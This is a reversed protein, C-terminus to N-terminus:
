PSHGTGSCAGRHVSDGDARRSQRDRDHLFGRGRYHCHSEDRAIGLLIPNRQVRWRFRRPFIVLTLEVVEVGCLHALLVFTKSRTLHSRRDATPSHEDNEIAFCHSLVQVPHSVVVLVVDVDVLVNVDVDVEVVLVVM